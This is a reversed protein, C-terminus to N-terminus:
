DFKFKEKVVVGHFTQHLEYVKDDITKLMKNVQEDTYEYSNKNACQMLSDLDRLTKNVRTQAVKIFREKKIDSM